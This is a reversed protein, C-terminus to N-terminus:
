RTPQNERTHVVPPGQRSEPWTLVVVLLAHLRAWWTRRKAPPVGAFPDPNTDAVIQHM